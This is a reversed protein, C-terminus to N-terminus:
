RLLLLLVPVEGFVLPLDIIQKRTIQLLLDGFGSVDLIVIEIGDSILIVGFTRCLILILSLATRSLQALDRFNRISGLEFDLKFYVVLLIM